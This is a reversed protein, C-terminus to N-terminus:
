FRFPQICNSRYSVLLPMLDMVYEPADDRPVGEGSLLVGAKLRPLGERAALIKRASSTRESAEEAM